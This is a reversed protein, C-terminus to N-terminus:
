PCPREPSIRVIDTDLTVSWDVAMTRIEDLTPWNGRGLFRADDVLIVSERRAGTLPHLLAQLESRLPCTEHSGATGPSSYHADLWFLAPGTLTRLINPILVASDGRYISVKPNNAFREACRWARDPDLEISYARDVLPALEALTDGDLTGTELFLHLGHARLMDALLERKAEDTYLTHGDLVRTRTMPSM